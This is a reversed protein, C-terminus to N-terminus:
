MTRTLYLDEEKSNVLDLLQHAQALIVRLRSNQIFPPPQSFPKVLNETIWPGLKEGYCPEALTLDAGSRVMLATTAIISSVSDLEGGRGFDGLERLCDEWPTTEGKLHHLFPMNPSCGESLLFGIIQPDLAASLKTSCILPKKIAHYLLPLQLRQEPAILRWWLRLTNFMNLETTLILSLKEADYCCAPDRWEIDRLHMTIFGRDEDHNLVLKSFETLALVALDTYHARDALRAQSLCDSKLGDIQTPMLQNQVFSMYLLPLSMLSLAGNPQFNTDDIQLCPLAWVDPQNLFEFVTRHLFDVTSDILSSERNLTSHTQRCFCNLLCNLKGAKLELLGCCRSRLRAEYSKCIAIKEELRLSTYKPARLVDLEQQDFLAMGLTSMEVPNTSESDSDLQRQYRLRLTKAAQQRYRPEVRSLIHQFLSELEPPLEDVRRQLEALSDYAAFGDLLSRCALIVWLFVGSAKDVVERLLGEAGTPHMERLVSTYPHTGLMDDAYAKIDGQTLDQLRMIPHASFADVCAPLPRSSVLIKVNDTLTLDQIFKVPWLSIGTTNM